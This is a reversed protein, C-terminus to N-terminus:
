PHWSQEQKASSLLLFIFIAKPICADTSNKSPWHQLGSQMHRCWMQKNGICLESVREMVVIMVSDLELVCENLIGIRRKQIHDTRQTCYNFLVVSYLSVLKAECGEGLQLCSVGTLPAAQAKIKGTLRWGRRGTGGLKWSSFTSCPTVDCHATSGGSTYHSQQSAFEYTSTQNAPSNTLCDDSRCVDYKWGGGPQESGKYMAHKLWMSCASVRSSLVKESIM